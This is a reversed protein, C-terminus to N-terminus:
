VNAGAVGERLSGLRAHRAASAAAMADARVDSASATILRRVDDLPETECRTLIRLMLPYTAALADATVAALVGRDFRLLARSGDSREDVDLMLEFPLPWRPVEAPTVACGALELPAPPQQFTFLAEFPPDFRYEDGLSERLLLGYPCDARQLAEFTTACSAALFERVTSSWEVQAAIPVINALFGVIEEHDRGHRNAAPCGIVVRDRGSHIALLLQFAAACVAFPTTGLRSAAARVGAVIEPPLAFTTHAPRVAGGRTVDTGIRM